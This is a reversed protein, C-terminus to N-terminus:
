AKFLAYEFGDTRDIHPWVTRRLEPTVGAAAFVDDSEAPGLSCVAYLLRGGPALLPLAAELMQQQIEASAKISEPTARWRVDPQRQMTGLAACPPDLLIADITGRLAAPPDLADGCVVQVEDAGLRELQRRLAKARGPHREVATIGKGSGMLAALHSTKGGPASCLELVREGAQPALQRAALMAGRSQAIVHGNAWEQTSELDVPEGLVIAEPIEEDAHSPVGLGSAVANRDALLTNARVAREAAENCRALLARAGDRGLEVFWRQALWRPVSHTIAATEPTNDGPLEPLGERLARRLVANVMRDGGRNSLRKAVDVTESVAAHPPIRDLYALQVLGLELPIRVEDDLEAPNRGSLEGIWYGLTLHRQVAAYVLSRALHHERGDLRTAEARFARDAYADDRSVRLLTRAAVLRAGRSRTTTSQEGSM